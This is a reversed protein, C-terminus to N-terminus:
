SNSSLRESTWPIRDERAQEGEVAAGLNVRGINEFLTRLEQVGSLVQPEARGSLYADLAADIAELRARARTGVVGAAELAALAHTADALQQAGAVPLAQVPSLIQAILERCAELASRDGRELPQGHLVRSTALVVQHALAGTTASTTLGEPDALDIRLFAM